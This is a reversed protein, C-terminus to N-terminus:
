IVQETKLPEISLKFGLNHLIKVLTDLRPNGKSSLTQYVHGRNLHAREALKGLGGQAEAVDRLALLFAESNRDQEYEELDEADDVVLLQSRPAAVRDDSDHREDRHDCRAAVREGEHHQRHRHEDEVLDRDEEASQTVPAGTLCGRGRRSRVM